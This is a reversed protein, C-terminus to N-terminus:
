RNALSLRRSKAADVVSDLAQAFRRAMNPHGYEEVAQRQGSYPVYGKTKYSAYASLLFERVQTKALAHVGANAAQLTETIVGRAGGVALIPRAAALYEFLKASHHGTEKPNSWPLLFLIQSERQHAVSDMRPTPGNVEVVENLGYKEILAPLWPEIRGYFRVRL